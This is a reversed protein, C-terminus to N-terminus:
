YKIAELASIKVAKNAPFYGAAVGIFISFVLAFGILWLPIVSIQGAAADGMGMVGAEMMGMDEVGSGMAQGAATNMVASIVYSILIGLVGGLFGIIGAEMLFEKRIDSVYCGLAKMIGIERTRETISMIMTNAIGIAAVLLSIAGLGGLMLQKQKAEKEMPKRISEMSYTQFGMGKIQEETDEVQNIDHVYVVVQSFEDGTKKGTLKTIAKRIAKLDKWKMVLGDSTEMGLNYDEKLVGTVKMEQVPTIKIKNNGPMMSNEGSSPTNETKETKRVLMVENKLQDFYPKADQNMWYDVTNKGDPRKTDAFQYAFYQGALVEYPKKGPLEGEKLKYGLQEFASDPVGVVTVNEAQYRGSKGAQFMLENMNLSDKMAALKVQPMNQFKRLAEENLKMKGKGKSPSPQVTIATLNGMQELMKKQSEKMGIGISIMIVIACCGIVVGSVTLGTRGKRRYLNKLCIRFLDKQKMASGTMKKM